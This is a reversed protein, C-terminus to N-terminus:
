SFELSNSPPQQEQPILEKEWGYNVGADNCSLEHCIMDQFQTPGIVHLWSGHKVLNGTLSNKITPWSHHIRNGPSCCKLFLERWALQDCM